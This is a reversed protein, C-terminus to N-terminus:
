GTSTVKSMDLRAALPLFSWGLQPKDYQVEFGLSLTALKSAQEAM